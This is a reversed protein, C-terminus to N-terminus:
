PEDDVICDIKELKNLRANLFNVTERLQAIEIEHVKSQGNVTKYMTSELIDLGSWCSFVCFTMLGIIISDLTSGTFLFGVTISLLVAFLVKMNGKADESM